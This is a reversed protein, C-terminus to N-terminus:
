RAWDSLSLEFSGFLATAWRSSRCQVLRATRRGCRRCGLAASADLPPSMAGIWGFVRRLPDAEDGRDERGSQLLM